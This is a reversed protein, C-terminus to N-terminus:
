LRQWLPPGARPRQAARWRFAAAFARSGPASGPRSRAPVRWRSASASLRPLGGTGSRRRELRRSAGRALAAGTGLAGALLQRAIRERRGRARALDRRSAGRARLLALEESRARGHRAGGPVRACASRPCGSRRAHHLADRRLARRRHGREPCRLPQRRLRGPGAAPARCSQSDARGAALAHAPSGVIARPDVQAQVQWQVGSLTGPRGGADGSLDLRAAARRHARLDRVAPDRHEAPPQAPAPGVLPISRSSCCTPRQSSRSAVSGSSCQGRGAAADSFPTAPSFRFPRLSSSISCSRAPSSRAASSGYRRCAARLGAPRRPDRWRRVPDHWNARTCSARSRLPRLLSPRPLTRSGRSACPSGSHPSASGVPGQWDLPVTHVASATMTRLSHGIFLLMAGLLAAAAALALVRMM